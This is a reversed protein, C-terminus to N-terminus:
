ADVVGGKLAAIMLVVNLVLRPSGDALLAFGMSNVGTVERELTRPLPHVVVHEYGDAEDILLAAHGERCSLFGVLRPRAAGLPSNEANILPYSTGNESQYSFSNEKPTKSTSDQPAHVHEACFREFREIRFAPIAIENTGCRLLAVDLAIFPVPLFLSVEVTGHETNRISGHGGSQHLISSIEKMKFATGFRDESDALFHPMLVIRGIDSESYTSLDRTLLGREQALKGAVQAQYARGDHECRCIVTAGDTEVSVHITARAPKGAARREEPSEISERIYVRILRKIIEELSGLVSQDVELDTATVKLEAEVNFRTAYSTTLSQLSATISKFPQMRSRAVLTRLEDATKEQLFAVDDLERDEPHRLACARLRRRVDDFHLLQRVLESNRKDDGSQFAPSPRTADHTWHEDATSLLAEYVPIDDADHVLTCTEVYFSSRITLLVQEPQTSCFRVYLGHDRLYSITGTDGGVNNPYCSVRECLRAIRRIILSARTNELDCNPKFTVQAILEPYRM